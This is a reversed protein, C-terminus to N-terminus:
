RCAKSFWYYSALFKEIIMQNGLYNTEACTCVNFSYNFVLFYLRISFFIISFWVFILIRKLMLVTHRHAHICVHRNVTHMYVTFLCTHTHMCMYVCM